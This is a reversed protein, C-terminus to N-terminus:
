KVSISRILASDPCAALDDWIADMKKATASGSYNDKFTGWDSFSPLVLILGFDAEAMHAAAPFNLFVQINEGGKIKKAAALWKTMTSTLDEVTADDDQECALIHVASGAFSPAAVLALMSVLILRIFTNM